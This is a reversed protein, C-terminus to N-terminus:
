GPGTGRRCSPRPRPRPASAVRRPRRARRDSALLDAVVERHPPLRRDRRHDHRTRGLLQSRDRLEHESSRLQVDGLLRANEAAEHLLRDRRGVVVRQRHVRQDVRAVLAVFRSGITAYSSFSPRAPARLAAPSPRTAPPDPRRALPHHLVAVDDVLRQLERDRLERHEAHQQQAPACVGPSSFCRVSRQCANRESSSRSAVSCRSASRPYTRWSSRRGPWFSDRQIVNITSPASAVDRGRPWARPGARRGHGTARAPRPAGSARLRRGLRPAPRVTARRHAVRRGTLHEAVDRDGVFALDRLLDFAGPPRWGAHAARGYSSRRRTTARTERCARLRSRPTRACSWAALDALRDGTACRSRM